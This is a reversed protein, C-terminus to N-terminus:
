GFRDAPILAEIKAFCPEVNIEVIVGCKFDRAIGVTRVERGYSMDEHKRHIFITGVPYRENFQAANM